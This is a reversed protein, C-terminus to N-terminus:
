YTAIAANTTDGIGTAAVCQACALPAVRRADDDRAVLAHSFINRKGDM